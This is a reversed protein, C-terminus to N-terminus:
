IRLRVLWLCVDARHDSVIPRDSVVQRFAVTTSAAESVMWSGPMSTPGLVEPLEIAREVGCIGFM